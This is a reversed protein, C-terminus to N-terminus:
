CCLTFVYVDGAICRGSEHKFLATGELFCTNTSITMLILISAIWMNWVFATKSFMLAVVLMPQYVQLNDVVSDNKPKLM